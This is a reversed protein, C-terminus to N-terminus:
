ASDALPKGCSKCFRADEDNVTDCASCLGAVPQREDQDEDGTGAAEDPEGPADADLRQALEREIVALFDVAEADLQKMLGLARLRLRRGVEEFDADSVKGMARDFELEKISRLVLTKEREVAARSRSGVMATTDQLEEETLPRITRYVMLGVFAAAGVTLTLMILVIVSPPRAVVVAFTAALMASTAFLHWPRFSSTVTPPTTSSGQAPEPSGTM